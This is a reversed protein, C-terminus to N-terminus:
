FVTGDGLNQAVFLLVQLTILFRLWRVSLPYLCFVGVKVSGEAVIDPSLVLPTKIYLIILDQFLGSHKGM